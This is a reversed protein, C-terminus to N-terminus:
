PRESECHRLREAADNPRAGCSGLEPRQAPGRARGRVFKERGPKTVREQLGEPRGRTTYSSVVHFTGVRLPRWQSHFRM